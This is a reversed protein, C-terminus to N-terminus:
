QKEQTHRDTAGAQCYLVTNIYNNHTIFVSQTYSTRYQIMDWARMHGPGQKTDGLWAAIDYKITYQATKTPTQILNEYMENQIIDYCCSKTAIM